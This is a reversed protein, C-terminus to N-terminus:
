TISVAANKAGAIAAFHHGFAVWKNTPVFDKGDEHLEAMMYPKRVKYGSKRFKGLQLWQEHTNIRGFQIFDSQPHKIISKAFKQIFEEDFHNEQTPLIINAASM